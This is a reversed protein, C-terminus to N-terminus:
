RNAVSIILENDELLYQLLKFAHYEFVDFVSTADVNAKFNSESSKWLVESM